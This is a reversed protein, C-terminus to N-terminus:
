TILRTFFRDTGPRYTRNGLRVPNIGVLEM